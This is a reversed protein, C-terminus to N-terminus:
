ERYIVGMYSLYLEELILLYFLTFDSHASFISLFVSYFIFYSFFINFFCHNRTQIDEAYSLPICETGTVTSPECPLNTIEIYERQRGAM